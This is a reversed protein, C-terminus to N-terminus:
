SPTVRTKPLHFELTTWPLLLWGLLAWFWSEFAMGILVIM